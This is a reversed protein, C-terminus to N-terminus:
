KVPGVFVCNCPVRRRHHPRAKPLPVFAPMAAQPYAFPAVKARPFPEPKKEVFKEVIREVVEIKTEAPAAVVVVPAPAHAKERPHFYVLAAVIGLVFFSIIAARM